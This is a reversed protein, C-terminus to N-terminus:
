IGHEADGAIVEDDLKSNNLAVLATMIKTTSALLSKKDGNKSVLIRGSDADMISMAEYAFAQKSFLIFVVLFIFVKRM